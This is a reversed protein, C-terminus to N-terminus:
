RPQAVVRAATLARVEAAGLAKLVRACADLTAGTTCVDDVLVVITGGLTHAERTAAFADRVNRHRRASPLGTQTPTARVRRLAHRVPLGLPRALDAAQNFGRERHRSAHLPVPVVCAAGTLIDAGRDRMLEALRDALSRRGDYKLAHIIARLAGDYAGIARARDVSSRLRRCRPCLSPAAQVSRWTRLPDGCRDCLPPTLPLISRWCAACVPGDTPHELSAQCSACAPSLAVALVADLVATAFRCDDTSLKLLSWTRATLAVFPGLRSQSHLTSQGRVQPELGDASEGGTGCKGM